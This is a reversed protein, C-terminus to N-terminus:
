TKTLGLNNAIEDLTTAKSGQYNFLRSAVSIITRRKLERQRTRSFHKNM